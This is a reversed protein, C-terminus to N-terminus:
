SMNHFSVLIYAFDDLENINVGILNGVSNIFFM